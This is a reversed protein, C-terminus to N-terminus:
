EQFNREAEERRLQKQKAEGEKRRNETEKALKELKKKEQLARLNNRLWDLYQEDAEKRRQEGSESRATSTTKPKKIQKKTFLLKTPPKKM